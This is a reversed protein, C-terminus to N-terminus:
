TLVTIFFLVNITKMATASRLTATEQLRCLGFPLFTIATMGLPTDCKKQCLTCAPASLGNDGLGLHNYIEGPFAPNAAATRLFLLALM